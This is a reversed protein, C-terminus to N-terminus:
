PRRHEIGYRAYIRELTGDDILQSLARNVETLLAQDANRLAISQNWALDPETEFLALARVEEGRQKQRFRLSPESAAAAPIVGNSLDELMDAQFAYPTTRVGERGLVVSALSGVMAGVRPLQKLDAVSAASTNEGLAVLIGTRHYPQSLLRGDKAGPESPRDMLMDCNVENIRRRPVLWEVRLGVNLKDAVARAIEVQYGPLEGTNSAYPLADPHACVSISGLAQIQQLTRAQAGGWAPAAIALLFLLRIASM